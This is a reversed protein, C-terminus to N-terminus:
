GIVVEARPIQLRKGNRVVYATSAESTALARFARSARGEQYVGIVVNVLLAALIVLADTFHSIVLTIGAAALLVFAIPSKFQRLIRVVLSDTRPSPLENSEVAGRRAAEHDSLGHELDSQILRASDAVTTAHWPYQHM